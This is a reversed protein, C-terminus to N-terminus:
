SKANLAPFSRDMVVALVKLYMWFLKIELWFPRSKIPLVNQEGAVQHVLLFDTGNQVRFPHGFWPDFAESFEPFHSAFSDSIEPLISVPFVPLDFFLVLFLRIIIRCHRLGM